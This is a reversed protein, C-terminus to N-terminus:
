ARGRRRPRPTVGTFTRNIGSLRELYILCKGAQGRTSLGTARADASARGHFGPAVGGGGAPRRPVYNLVPALWREVEAVPMGKRRPTTRSRTASSRPSASITPQRSPRSLPGVGVLGAVHRLERDADRRDGGDRRAPPVADGERHPRAAGSLRAGPPHRPLARRDAGRARLAEDPAYGWFERRVREHMREAFAEAFRDALAKVLIASYDDNAREFRAAIAVEEIGATVVFGGVYDACARRRSSTPSRWTRGATASRGSSACRTCRRSRRGARGRRHLPPHRRRRREGALLRDGGRPVFWGEGVIKALMAQADDFLAARRRARRRTTSSRRIAARSSGPRSSRRGTSIARSSPSIGTTSCGRASSPRGRRRTAPGTSSPAREGAGGRAAAAAERARGRAHAEALKRTSRRPGRRRVAGEGRAVAPELGRRGRPQRRHCLRDPRARLAPPDEGGHARPEDDGRRDAAARRLGRAGDRGRCAGDRRAVAHDPRLPRHHRGGRGQATELIKTAPVMVGLDIIEYNNCALVVGVINKGIDHVDGKVTAMLIKGASERGGDGGNALKEAEMYPLLVAVAQKMVRASKVVQPLFMKGAGFLDGVVNMGAM